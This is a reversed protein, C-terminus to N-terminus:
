PHQAPSGPPSVEGVGGAAAVRLRDGLCVWNRPFGGARRLAPSAPKVREVPVLVLQDPRERRRRSKDKPELKKRAVAVLVLQVSQSALAAQLRELRVELARTSLGEQQALEPRPVEVGDLGWALSLLRRDQPALRAILGRLQEAQRWRERQEEEDEPTRDYTACLSGLELGDDTVVQDLSAVSRGNEVVQELVKVSVGLEAAIEAQTPTRNLELELRRTIAQLKALHQCHSGPIAIARSYQDIHRNVGQRIWWWAYTSFRYGKAPDFREAATLLAMNGAQILDERDQGAFLRSRRSIFAVVLRLNASVFRDRARMGRRRIGPPCPDPHAQWRQIATGLEIEEAPSLL